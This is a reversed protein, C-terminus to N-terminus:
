MRPQAALAAGGAPPQQAIATGGLEIKFTGTEPGETVIRIIQKGDRDIPFSRTKEETPASGHVWYQEGGSADGELLEFTLSKDAGERSTASIQTLLEGKKVDAVVYHIARRGAGPLAGTVMGDAPIPTPDFISRSLTGAASAPKPTGGALASGGFEVRFSATPPGEVEIRITQRGAADIPFSRTKEESEEEGHTWYSGAVRGDPGLLALEVSKRAGRRGDFGIQTLLEGAALDVTAFYTSKGDPFAGEVVGSPAVATPNLASTSLGAASASGAFLVVVAAAAASFRYSM